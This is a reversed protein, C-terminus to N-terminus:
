VRCTLHPTVVLLVTAAVAAATSGVALRTFRRRPGQPRPISNRRLPVMAAESAALAHYTAANAADEELWVTFEDWEEFLPDNTRVLWELATERTELSHNMVM